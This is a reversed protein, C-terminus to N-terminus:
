APKLQGSSSKAIFLQRTALIGIVVTVLLILLYASIMEGGSLPIRRWAGYVFTTWWSTASVAASIGLLTAAAPLNTQSFPKGAAQTLRPLIMRHIVLGNIVIVFTIGLKVLPKVPLEALSQPIGNEFLLMLGSVIILSLGLWVLNGITKILAVREQSFQGARLAQLSVVDVVTASGLGIVIGILHFLVLLNHTSM